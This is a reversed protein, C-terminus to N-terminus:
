KAGGSESVADMVREIQLGSRVAAEMVFAGSEAEFLYFCTEEEPVFISRLLHVERGERSVEEAVHSVGVESCGAAEARSVYAEVLFESVRGVTRIPTGPNFGPFGPIIAPRGPFGPM